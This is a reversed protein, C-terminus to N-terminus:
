DSHTISSKGTAEAAPKQLLMAIVFADVLRFLLVKKEKTMSEENM